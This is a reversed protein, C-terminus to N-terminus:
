MTGAVDLLAGAVRRIRDADGQARGAEVASADAWLSTALEALAERKQPGDAMAEIREMEAAVEQARVAGIGGHRVLQDHYARAVAMHPPWVNRPQQQPNFEEFTVLRAAELENATLHESPTLELVDLGRAIESGYLYGNYWYTSWQGGTYLRDESIPGRDFYAIEFPNAPDTFDFVSVGGQYWAQVKIDRGPVPVLSGNHAVCNETAEQPVPLKYYSRHYMRGNVVRFIANAGWNVPDEARCRPATGGGWEDTFIVTSGDNNFTASHWYAFNPDFVEDVRVPDAPDSIDLLIGNGSCAGAALGIEPYITIDHCHNTQATRQTGEAFQGGPWLAAVDGTERDAFVRPTTIVEADEPAALPVRIVEIRFLASEDPDVDDGFECGALEEAPRVGAAGSVYVYMNHPDDAAELITHTHSGRCTQVAAVQVPSDLDSIDFIRVGRFREPNVEGPAGETGCDIRGRTQEVSMFLLNRYVSVDGQGGPCLVSTRLTPNSPDSVDYIMFGNFNGVFVLDNQFALDSNALNLDGLNDSDYFGAPRPTTAVLEMNWTASEADMWGAALGIRPDGPDWWAPAEQAATAAPTALIMALPLSLAALLAPATRRVRDPRPALNALACQAFPNCSM